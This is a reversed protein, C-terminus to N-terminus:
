PPYLCSIKGYEPPATPVRTMNTLRLRLAREWYPYLRTPLLNSSHPAGFSGSGEAKRLVSIYYLISLANLPTWFRPTGKYPNPRHRTMMPPITLIIDVGEPLTANFVDPSIYRTDMPLPSAMNQTAESPLLHPYTARLRTLRHYVVAQTDPNTETCTYSAVAYSARLFAELSTALGGCLEAIRLTINLIPCRNNKM